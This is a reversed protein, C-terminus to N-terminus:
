PIDGGLFSNFEIDNAINQTGGIGVYSGADVPNAPNDTFTATPTTDGNWNDASVPTTGLLASDTWIRVVTNDGTGTITISFVAGAGTETPTGSSANIQTATGGIATLHYWDITAVGFEFYYFETSADTYRVPIQDYSSESTGAHNIQVYQNVTSCATNTYIAFLGGFSGDVLQANNNLIDIDPDAETWNAGLSDSDARNFDDSFAAGGAAAAGIRQPFFATRRLQGMVPLVCFMLAIIVLKTTRSLHPM